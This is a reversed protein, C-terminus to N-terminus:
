SRIATPTRLILPCFQHYFKLQYSELAQVDICELPERPERPERPEETQMWVNSIVTLAIISVQFDRALFSFM